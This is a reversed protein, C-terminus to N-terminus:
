LIYIKIYKSINKEQHNKNLSNKKNIISISVTVEGCLFVVFVPRASPWRSAASRLSPCTRDSWQCRPSSPRAVQPRRRNKELVGLSYLLYPDHSNVKTKQHLSLPSFTLNSFADFSQCSYIHINKKWTMTTALQLISCAQGMKRKEFSWGTPDTPKASVLQESLSGGRTAFCRRSCRALAPCMKLYWAPFVFQWDCLPVQPEGFSM